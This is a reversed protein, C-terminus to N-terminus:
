KGSLARQYHRVEETAQDNLIRVHDKLIETFELVKAADHLRYKRFKDSLGPIAVSAVLRQYGNVQGSLMHNDELDAFTKRSGTTGECHRQLEVILRDADDALLHLKGAFILHSDLGNLARRLEIRLKREESIEFRMNAVRNLGWLCAAIVVIMLGPQWFAAIFNMIIPDGPRPPAPPFVWAVFGMTAAVAACVLLWLADTKWTELSRYERLHM